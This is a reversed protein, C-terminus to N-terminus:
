AFRIYEYTRFPVLAILTFESVFRSQTEAWNKLECDMQKYACSAFTKDSAHAQKFSFRRKNSNGARERYKNLNANFFHFISRQFREKSRNFTHEMSNKENGSKTAIVNIALLFNMERSSMKKGLLMRVPPHGVYNGSHTRRSHQERPIVYISRPVRWM